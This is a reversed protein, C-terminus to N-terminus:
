AQVAPNLVAAHGRHQGGPRALTRHREASARRARAHGRGSPMRRPLSSLTCRLLLPTNPPATPKPATLHPSSMGAYATRNATHATCQALKSAPAAGFGPLCACSAPTRAGASCCVCTRVCVAVCVCVCVPATPARVSVGAQDLVAEKDDERDAAAAAAAQSTPFPAEQTASVLVGAAAAAPCPILAAFGKCMM